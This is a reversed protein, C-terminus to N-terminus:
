YVAMTNFVNRFCRWYNCRCIDGGINSVEFLSLASVQFVFAFIQFTCPVQFLALLFTWFFQWWGYHGIYDSIIDADEDDEAASSKAAETKGADSFRIVHVAHAAASRDSASPNTKSAAVTTEALDRAHLIRSVNMNRAYLARPLTDGTQHTASSADTDTAIPVAATAAARERAQLYHVNASYLAAPFNTTGTEAAHQTTASGNTIMTTNSTDTAAAPSPRPTIHTTHYQSM